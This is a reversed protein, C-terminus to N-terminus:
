KINSCSLARLKSWNQSRIIIIIIIIAPAAASIAVVRLDTFYVLKGAEYKNLGIAKSISPGIFRDAKFRRFSKPRLILETDQSSLTVFMEEKLTQRDNQLTIISNQQM